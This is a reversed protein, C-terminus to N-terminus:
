RLTYRYLHGGSPQVLSRSGMAFVTQADQALMGEFRLKGSHDWIKVGSEATLLM